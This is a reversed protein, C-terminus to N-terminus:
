QEEVLHKLIRDKMNTNTEARINEIRAFFEEPMDGWVGFYKMLRSFSGKSGENLLGEIVDSFSQNTQKLKGLRNYLDERIAINRSTM